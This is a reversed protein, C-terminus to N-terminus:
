TARCTYTIKNTDYISKSHSSLPGYGYQDIITMKLTGDQNLKISINKRSDGKISDIKISNNTTQFDLTGSTLPDTKNITEDLCTITSHNYKIPILPLFLNLLDLSNIPLNDAHNRMKQILVGLYKAKKQMHM